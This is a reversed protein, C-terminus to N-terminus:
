PWTGPSRGRRPPRGRCPPRGHCRPCRRGTVLYAERARSLITRLLHGKSRLACSQEPRCAIAHRAARGHFVVGVGLLGRRLLRPQQPAVLGLLGPRRLAVPVRPRGPRGPHRRGRQGPVQVLRLRGRPRAGAGAM